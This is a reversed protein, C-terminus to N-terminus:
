RTFERQPTLTRSKQKTWATIIDNTDDGWDVYFNYTGVSELPLKVQTSTSSDSSTQTTNWVSVFPTASVVFVISDYGWVGETSNAMSDTHQNRRIRNYDHESHLYCKRCRLDYYWTDVATDSSVELPINITNYIADAPSFITIDPMAVLGGDTIIWGYTGTLINRGALGASSYKFSDADFNVGNQQTRSSWGSLLSDYNATSMSNAANYFMYTMDTVQSTDWNGIDQNFSTANYFMYTMDTVQSTDWNGIDQNFSTARYFMSSMDTVQEHGTASTRTSLPPM